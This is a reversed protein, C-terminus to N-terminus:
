GRPQFGQERILAFESGCFLELQAEMERDLAQRLHVPAAADILELQKRLAMPSRRALRAAKELAVDALSETEVVWEVLRWEEAQRADMVDGSTLLWKARAPGLLRTLLVSSGTDSVVGFGVEPFSYKLDTGAIRFDCGLALEAGAGIAHGHMACISPKGLECQLLRLEQAALILERHSAHEGTELFGNRDRGSCFSRGAGQLLVARVADDDRAWILAEKLAARLADDLANHVRPRNLTIIGVGDRLDRLIPPAQDAPIAMKASM